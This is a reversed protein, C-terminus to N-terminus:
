SWNGVPVADGSWDCRNWFVHYVIYIFSDFYALAVLPDSDSCSVIISRARTNLLFRAYAEWIRKKWTALGGVIGSPTTMTM